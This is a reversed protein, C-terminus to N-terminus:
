REVSATARRRRLWFLGGLGFVAGWGLSPEPVAASAKIEGAAVPITPFYGAETAFEKVEAPANDGHLVIERLPLPFLDNAEIGDAFIGEVSLDYTESFNITGGPATPFGEESLLPLLIPGYFPAGESVEVFGDGDTDATPPPTVSNIPEGLADFRGHIHQPHVSDPVLGSAEIEVNLFSPTGTADDTILELFATGEVGSNNLSELDAEYNLSAGQAAIAPLFALSSSILAIKNLRNM